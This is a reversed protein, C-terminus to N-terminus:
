DLIHYFPEMNNHGKEYVNVGKGYKGNKVTKFIINENDPVIEFTPNPM